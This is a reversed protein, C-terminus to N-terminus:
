SEGGVGGTWYVKVHRNETYEASKLVEEQTMCKGPIDKRVDKLKIHKKM